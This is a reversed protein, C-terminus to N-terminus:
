PKLVENPTIMWGNWLAAGNRIPILRPEHMWSGQDDCLQDVTACAHQWDAASDGLYEADLNCLCGIEMWQTTAVDNTKSVLAARHTHGSAGSRGCDMQRHATYGAKSRVGDGHTIKFGNVLVPRNYAHCEVGVADLGLLGAFSLCRLGQLAPAKKLLYRRLRDEHNGLLYIIRADPHRQRLRAFWERGQDCEAQLGLLEIAKKDYRSIASCDLLDGNVAIITPEYLQCIREAVALANDDQHPFHVDSLLFIKERAWRRKRLVNM